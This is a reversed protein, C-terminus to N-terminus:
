DWTQTYLSKKCPKPWRINLKLKSIVLGRTNCVDTVTNMWQGSLDTPREAPKFDCRKLRYLAQNFMIPNCEGMIHPNFRPSFPISNSAHLDAHMWGVPSQFIPSSSPTSAMLFDTTFKKQHKEKCQEGMNYGFAWNGIQHTRLIIWFHWICNPNNNSCDIIKM